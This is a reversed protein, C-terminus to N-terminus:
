KENIIKDLKKNEEELLKLHLKEEEIKLELIKREHELKLLNIKNKKNKYIFLFIVGTLIVLTSLIAIIGIDTINGKQQGYADIIRALGEFDMNYGRM